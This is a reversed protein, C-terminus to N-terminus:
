GRVLEVLQEVHTVPTDPLIGHGLNFVHPRGAMTEMINEVQRLLVDGGALLALPDLNGQLTVGPLAGRAWKLDVTTDLSVASVGTQEGYRRYGDLTAQRPFGIIRAQPIEARVKEVISKTPGVIFADFFDPRLGGASSDFIQVVDAGAKLQRILSRAVCDALDDILALFSEPERYVWLKAARQEDGGGGAAMYSALTWPGGTFGILATDKLQAKVLGLTEIIPALAKQHLEPDRELRTAPTVPELKPRGSSFDVFCGFAAPITLIDSFVIAADFGFRRVPQLTVEAALDPKHCLEWFSGAKQRIEHYESLYRGAQRMLWLPTCGPNKGDLVSTLADESSM